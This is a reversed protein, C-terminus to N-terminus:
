RIMSLHRQVHLVALIYRERGHYIREQFLMMGLMKLREQRGLVGFQGREILLHRGELLGNLTRAVYRSRTVGATM